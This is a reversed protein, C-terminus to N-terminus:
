RKFMEGVNINQREFTDIQFVEKHRYGMSRAVINSPFMEIANNYDTVCANYSRRAASIQAEVEGLSNQLVTFNESARLTPYNEVAIMISKLSSTIENDLKVLKDAPLNPKMVQTRLETIKELLGKEHEMYTKVSSILNPILDYRMKLQVDIGAFANNVENKKGILSNYIIFYVIIPLLMLGIIIWISEM